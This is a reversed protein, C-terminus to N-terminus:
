VAGAPVSLQGPWVVIWVAPRGLPEAKEFPAVILVKSTVSAAPLLLLQLKVTVTLSVCAGCITQGAFITKLASGPWHPRLLTVNVTLALSLQRTVLTTELGADPM